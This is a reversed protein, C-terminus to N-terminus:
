RKKAAKAKPQAAAKAAPKARGGRTAVSRITAASVGIGRDQEDQDELEALEALAAKVTKAKLIAGYKRKAEKQLEALTRDIPEKRPEGLRGGAAYFAKVCADVEAETPVKGNTAKIAWQDPFGTLIHAEDETVPKVDGRGNWVQGSGAVNDVAFPKRGVYMVDVMSETDQENTDTTAM